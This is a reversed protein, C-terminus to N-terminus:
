VVGAERALITTMHPDEGTLQFTLYIRAERTKCLGIVQELQAETNYM